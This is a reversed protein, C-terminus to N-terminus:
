KAPKPYPPYLEPDITREFCTRGAQHDWSDNVGGPYPMSSVAIDRAPMIGGGGYGGKSYDVWGKPIHLTFAACLEFSKESVKKYEYANGKEFEPDQPVMFGSIPNKFEDLSAPLKEKQQWFSIVQWQISQLDEVRRQDLRLDRQSGPGGMVMFGYVVTFIVLISAITTLFVNKSKSMLPIKVGLDSLYNIGVIKATVLVALVKLIFRVTIEGSVFYRVLTVLDVIVMVSALFIILYLAWRKLVEDWHSLGNKKIAKNWFYSLVLFVPFIIILLAIASRMQDYSYSVYGYQYSATLVDPFVHDLTAFLLSLFASASAVLSVVVGLTLFFFKPTLKQSPEM